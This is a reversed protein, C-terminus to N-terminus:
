RVVCLPCRLFGKARTATLAHRTQHVQKAIHCDICLCQVTTVGIGATYCPHIVVSRLRLRGAPWDVCPLWEMTWSLTSSFVLYIRATTSRLGECARSLTRYHITAHRVSASLDSFLRKRRVQVLDAAIRQKSSHKSRGSQRCLYAEVIPSCLPLM